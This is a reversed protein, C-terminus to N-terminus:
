ECIRKEIELTEKESFDLVKKANEIQERAEKIWSAHTEQIGEAFIRKICQRGDHLRGRADFIAFSLAHLRKEAALLVELEKEFIVKKPATYRMLARVCAVKEANMKEDLSMQQM